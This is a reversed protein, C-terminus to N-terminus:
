PALLLGSFTKLIVEKEEVPSVGMFFLFLSVAGRTCSIGARVGSRSHGLRGWTVTQLSFPGHSRRLRGRSCRFPGAVRKELAPPLRSVM